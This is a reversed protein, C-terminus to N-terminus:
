YEVVDTVLRHQHESDTLDIDYPRALENMSKDYCVRVVPRGIYGQNIKSIICREGTNLNVMVGTPYLPVLRTFLKVLEPDFLVGSFAMVYEIAEHPLFNSRQPRRSVLAYYVDAISIIRAFPSIANGKLGYPYGSGDWQEHHSMVATIIEPEAGTFDKLIQYGYQCHQHVEHSEISDLSGPELMMGVPLVVYGINQLMAAMGLKLLEDEKYGLKRGMLISLGAVQAPHVCDYDKLSFCGTANAEGMVVPYMQQVMSFVIKELPDTDIQVSESTDLAVTRSKDLLTHLKRAAEGEIRAPFLPTVPVDDVRRDEFFLEGGGMRSLTAINDYTLRTGQALIVNGYNDFVDMSLVIGPQAYQASIRRL